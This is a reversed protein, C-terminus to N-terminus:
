ALREQCRDLLEKSKRIGEREPLVKGEYEIGVYGNYGAAAATATRLFDRRTIPGHM